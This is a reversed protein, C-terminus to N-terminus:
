MSLRRHETSPEYNPLLMCVCLLLNNCVISFLVNRLVGLVNVRKYGLICLNKEIGTNRGQPDRWPQANFANFSMTMEDVWLIKKRNFFFIKILCKAFCNGFGVYVNAHTTTPMQIFNCKKQRNRTRTLCYYSPPIKTFSVWEPRSVETWKYILNNLMCMCLESWAIAM